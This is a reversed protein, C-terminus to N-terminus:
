RDVLTQRATGAPRFAASQRRGARPPPRKLPDKALLEHVLEILARRLKAAYAQLDPLSSYRVMCCKLSAAARSRRSAALMTYLVCGLSYLDSRTTVTKGEAQEPPMYDATGIVAGAVTEETSGFLKAIGFDTLKLKGASDIMLNAAELGTSLGWIIRQKLAASTEIGIHVADHWDLRGRSRLPEHLSHGAVYEMVYFLLGQEEGYGILSVINPHRLRKLADIEAAFRRRFRPQGAISAAIVKIAVTEGSKSHVGKYVSGMGGRGILRDVHYPGLYEFEHHTM